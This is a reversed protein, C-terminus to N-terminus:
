NEGESSENTDSSITSSDSLAKIEDRLQAALEFNQEEIAQAQKQKLEELKAQREMEERHNGPARGVHRASGHIRYAATRLENKFIEYCKACGAKGSKQIDRDTAGCLPCATRAGVTQRGGSFFADLISDASMDSHASFFSSDNGACQSCLYEEHALGNIIQKLHVTATRKGCKQCLM